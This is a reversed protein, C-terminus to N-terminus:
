RVKAELKEQDELVSRKVLRPLVVDYLIEQRLLLDAFTDMHLVEFEAYSGWGVATRCASYSRGRIWCYRKSRRTFKRRAVWWVCIFCEWLGCTDLLLLSGVQLKPKPHLRLHDENRTPNSATQSRPVSIQNTKQKRWLNRWYIQTRHSQGSYGRSLTVVLTGNVGALQEKWYINSYIRNRVMQDFVSQPNGGHVTKAKSDTQNSM